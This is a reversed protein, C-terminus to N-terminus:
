FAILPGGLAFHAFLHLMMGWLALGLAGAILRAGLVRGPSVRLGFTFPLRSLGHALHFWAATIGFLYVILVLPRGAQRWLADYVDHVSTHPGGGASWVQAVHYVTFAMVMLGTVWQVRRLKPLEQIDTATGVALGAGARRAHLVALAVHLAVATSLVVLPGSHSPQHVARLLWADRGHVAPWHDYLHWILYTGLPVVGILSQLRGLLM